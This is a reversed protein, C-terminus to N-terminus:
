LDMQLDMYCMNYPSIHHGCRCGRLHFRSWTRQWRRETCRRQTRHLKHGWIWRPYLCLPLSKLQSHHNWTIEDCWTACANSPLEWVAAKKLIKKPCRKKLCPQETNYNLPLVSSLHHSRRPRLKSMSSASHATSLFIDGTTTRSVFNCYTAIFM